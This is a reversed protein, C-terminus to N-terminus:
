SSAVQWREDVDRDGMGLELGDVRELVAVTAGTPRQNLREQAVTPDDLM